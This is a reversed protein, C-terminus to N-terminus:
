PQSSAQNWAQEFANDIASSANQSSSDSQLMLSSQRSNGDNMDSILRQLGNGDGDGGNSLTGSKDPKAMEPTAARSEIDVDLNSSYIVAAFADLDMVRQEMASLYENPMETGNGIVYSQQSMVALISALKAKAMFLSAEQQQQQEHDQSNLSSSLFETACKEDILLSFAENNLLTLVHSFQPSEILDSTEDLLQLLDTTMEFTTTDEAPLVGSERLVFEERGKPPLLYPLWDM